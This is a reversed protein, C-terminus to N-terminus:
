ADPDLRSMTDAVLEPRVAYRHTEGDCVRAVGCAIADYDARLSECRCRAEGNTLGSAVAEQEDLASLGGIVGHRPVEEIRFARGTSADVIVSPLDHRVVDYRITTSNM